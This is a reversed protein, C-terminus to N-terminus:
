RRQRSQTECLRQACLVSQVVQGFPVVSFITMWALFDFLDIRGELFGFVGPSRPSFVRRALPSRGNKLGPPNWAEDPAAASAAEDPLLAPADSGDLRAACCATLLELVNRNQQRCTAVVGLMRRSSPLDSPRRGKSRGGAAAYLPNSFGVSQTPPLTAQASSSYGAALRM